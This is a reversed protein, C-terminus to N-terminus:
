YSFVVLISGVQLGLRQSFFIALFLGFVNSLVYIPSIAMDFRLNQFNAASIYKQRYLVLLKSFDELEYDEQAFSKVAMINTLSDSLRGSVKSGAIHREAVLRSRRRAIPFGILCAIVICSVLGVSIWISYFSLIIIAFFATLINNFLNFVITDTFSEFNRFFSSAMKTLSGVFNNTYFDYDRVSLREFGIKGLRNMGDAELKILFHIGIRWFIEGLFWLLGLLVVWMWVSSIFIGNRTFDNIIHAVIIPPVFLVLISGIAPSLFALVSYWPHNKYQQFYDFLVQKIAPYTIQQKEM